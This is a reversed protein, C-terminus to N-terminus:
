ATQLRRPVDVDGARPAHPLVAQLTEAVHSDAAQVADLFRQMNPRCIGEMDYGISADFITQPSDGPFGLHRHLVHILAWAHVYESLSQELTLEQSWERNFGRDSIAICPKPIDLRDLTQVTKLEIFRAGCLWAAIINQAMQSHPGAAVGLPTGLPRGHCRTAILGSSAPDFFSDRPIGFVSQRADLEKFVWAALESASIPQFKDTM